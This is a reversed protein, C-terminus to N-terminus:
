VVSKRDEANEGTYCEATDFFDYGLDYAKRIVKIATDKDEAMGYAHSFGMCGLGIMNVYIGTKGLQRKKM